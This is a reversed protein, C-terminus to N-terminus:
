ARCGSRGDLVGQFSGGADFIAVLLKRTTSKKEKENSGVVFFCDDLGHHTKLASCFCLFMIGISTDTLPASDM